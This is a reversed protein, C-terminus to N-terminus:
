PDSASAWHSAATLISFANGRVVAIAVRQFLWMCERQDGRQGALLSGIRHLLSTGRPGIIGSTEVALPIFQFRDSLTRYKTVKCEEAQRAVSGPDSASKVLNSCSFSDSCTADWVLSQGGSFPFITMGDPRRGDGRDLGVPELISPFGAADLSRKVIDNLVSHRPFRGTSRQCSLPHLGYEDM